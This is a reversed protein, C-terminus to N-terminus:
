HVVVTVENSPDSAGYDGLTRVRVYYTGPPANNVHYGTSPVSTDFVALDSLGPASGAEIRSRRPQNSDGRLSWQLRVNRGEVMASLNIPSLPPRGLAVNVENSPEGVHTTYIPRVRVYHPALRTISASAFTGPVMFRGLDSAGPVSGAEILYGSADPGAATWYLVMAPPGRWSWTLAVPPPRLPDALFVGSNFSLQPSVYAFFGDVVETIEDIRGLSRRQGTLVDHVEGQFDLNNYHVYSVFRGDLSIRTQTVASVRPPLPVTTTRNLERDRVVLFAPVFAGPPIPVSVLYRADASMTVFGGEGSTRPIVSTVGTARDRIYSNPDPEAFPHHIGFVAYRGDSSLMLRTVQGASVLVESSLHAGSQADFAYLTTQAHLLFVTQGDSTLWPRPPFDMRWGSAPPGMVRTVNQQRDRVYLQRGSVGPLLDADSVFAIFRGAHDLVGRFLTDTFGAHGAAAVSELM